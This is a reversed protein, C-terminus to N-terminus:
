CNGAKCRVTAKLPASQPSNPASDTIQLTDTYVGPPDSTPDFSVTISCNAGPGLSSGCTKSSVWFNGTITDISSIIVTSTTGNTLTFNFKAPPDTNYIILTWSTPNLQAAGTIPGYATLQGNSGSYGSGGVYVKGNAITPVTFKVPGGAADRISIRNSNYLEVGLNTGQYAHLIASSSATGSNDLAWVIGNSTGNASVSPTPSPWSFAPTKSTPGTLEPNGNPNFAWARMTDPYGPSASGFYVYGNWYAPSGWLGASQGPIEQVINTDGPGCTSCFKGMSGTTTSVLYLVGGKGMEVLRPTGPLLLVGGSGVDEDNNGYYTADFPTFYDLVALGSGAPSLKVISDGLDPSLYQDSNGTAFYLDGSSDAAVGNGSMWIGACHGNSPESNYIGNQALTSASYSFVWGYWNNNDCHSGSGFVINGNALLLAPRIHQDGADFTIGAYSGGISVPGGLQELGTEASLAHLQYLGSNLAVVYLIKSSPDIVPTSTIGYQPSIDSCAISSSSVPTGMHAQWYQYGTNADLAYVSDNETAVYVVNHTGGGISVNSLILPQAYVQGDVTAAFVKGFTGYNVNAPTLTTEQTNQGTRSIDNHYTTVNVQTFALPISLLLLFPASSPRLRRFLKM